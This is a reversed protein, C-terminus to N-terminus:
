HNQCEFGEKIQYMDEKLKKKNCLYCSIGIEEELIRKKEEYVRLLESEELQLKEQLKEQLKKQQFEEEKKERILKMRDTVDYFTDEFWCIYSDCLEKSYDDSIKEKDICRKYFNEITDVIEFENSAFTDPDETGDCSCHVVKYLGVCKSGQHYYITYYDCQYDIMGENIIRKTDYVKIKNLLEQYLDSNIKATRIKIDMDSEM